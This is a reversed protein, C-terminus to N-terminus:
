WRDNAWEGFKFSNAYGFGDIDPFLTLHRINFVESLIVSYRTKIDPPLAVVLLAKPEKPLKLSGAPRNVVDSYVFQSHQAAIRPSVSPPEWTQPCDVNVLGPFIDDYPRAEPEGEYGGMYHAHIGILVGTHSLETVVAFWLATLANRTFDVLRTAAGHHQLRALLDFDSIDHGEVRRFGRHTARKLLQKEYHEM